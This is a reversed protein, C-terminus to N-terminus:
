VTTNIGHYSTTGIKSDHSDNDYVREIDLSVGIAIEGNRLTEELIQILSLLTSECGKDSKYVHQSIHMTAGRVSSTVSKEFFAIVCWVNKSICSIYADFNLFWHRVM